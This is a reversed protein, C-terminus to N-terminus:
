TALLLIAFVISGLCFPWFRGERETPLEAQASTMVMGGAVFAFLRAFAVESIPTLSGALCGVPVSAALVWRGLRRYNRGRKEQLSHDIILFHLGMAVVYLALALTGKEAREVLLYGIMWSYVTFGVVQLVDVFDSTSEDEAAPGRKKVSVLHDLGYLLVFAVLALGYIRQAGFLPHEGEIQVVAQNRLSLEPLVDVFVYAVSVGAAFSMWRRHGLSEAFRELWEGLAYATALAFACVFAAM